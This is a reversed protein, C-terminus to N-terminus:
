SHKDRKHRGLGGVNGCVQGCVPCTVKQGNMSSLKERRIPNVEWSHVQAERVAERYEDKTWLQNAAIRHVERMKEVFAPDQHKRLMLESVAASVRERFQDDQWLLKMHEQHIKQHVEWTMRILNDPENNKKNFDAHHIIIQGRGVDDARRKYFGKGYKQKAVLQHTLVWSGDPLQTEEYGDPTDRTRDEM